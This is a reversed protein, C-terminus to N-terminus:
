PELNVEVSSLHVDGDFAASPDRVVIRAPTTISLIL